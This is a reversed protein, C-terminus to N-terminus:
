ITEKPLTHDERLVPEELLEDVLAGILSCKGLVDDSTANGYEALADLENPALQASCSM